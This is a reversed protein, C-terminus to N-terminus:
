VIKAKRAGRAIGWGKVSGGKKYGVAGGTTDAESLAKRRAMSKVEDSSLGEEARRLAARDNYARQAARAARMEAPIETAARAAKVARGPGLANLTNTFNRSLESGSVPEGSGGEWGGPASGGPIEDALERKRYPVVTTKPTSGEPTNRPKYEGPAAKGGVSAQETDSALKTNYKKGNFEFEKAGSKRADAFAQGFKSLAM